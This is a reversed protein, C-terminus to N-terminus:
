CYETIFLLLYMPVSMAYTHCVRRVLAFASTVYEAVNVREEYEPEGDNDGEFCEKALDDHDSDFIADTSVAMKKELHDM